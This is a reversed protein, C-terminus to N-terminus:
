QVQSKGELVYKILPIGGPDTITLELDDSTVYNFSAPVLLDNIDETIIPDIQRNCAFTTFLLGSVLLVGFKWM